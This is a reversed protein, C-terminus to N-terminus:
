FLDIFLPKETLYAEFIKIEEHYGRLVYECGNFTEKLSDLIRIGIVGIFQNSVAYDHKYM